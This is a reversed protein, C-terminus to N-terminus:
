NLLLGTGDATTDEIGSIETRNAIYIRDLAGKTAQIRSRKAVQMTNFSEAQRGTQHMSQVNRSSPRALLLERLMLSNEVNISSHLM